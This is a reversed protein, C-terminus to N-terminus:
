NFTVTATQNSSLSNIICTQAVVSDCGTWGAFTSGSNATASLNIVTGASFNASCSTTCDIGSPISTVTGLGLGAISVSLSAQSGSTTPPPPVYCTVAASTQGTVIAGSSYLEGSSTNTQVTASIVSSGCGLGTAVLLGTPTITFLQVTDSAWTVQNTIDKTVPPHIYSGLARMQVSAGADESVPVTTAGVTVASPVLSISVLQQDHACGVTSILFAALLLALACRFRFTM